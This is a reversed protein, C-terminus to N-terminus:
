CARSREQGGTTTSAQADGSPRKRPHGAAASCTAQLTGRGPAAARARAAAGPRAANRGPINAAEPRPSETVGNEVIMTILADAREEPMDGNGVTLRPM